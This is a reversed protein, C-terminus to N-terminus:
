FNPFSLYSYGGVEGSLLVDAVGRCEVGVRSKDYYKRLRVHRAVVRGEPDNDGFSVLQTPPSSGEQDDEDDGDDDEDIQTPTSDSGSSSTAQAIIGEVDIDLEDVDVDRMEEDEGEGTEEEDGDDNFMDEDQNWDFGGRGYSRLGRDLMRKAHHEAKKRELRILADRQICRPCKHPDTNANSASPFTFPNVGADSTIGLGRHMSPKEPDYTEYVFANMRGEGPEGRRGGLALCESEEPRTLVNRIDPPQFDVACIVKDRKMNETSTSPLKTFSVGGLHGPFWANSMSYDIVNVRPTALSLALADSAENTQANEEENQGGPQNETSAFVLPAPIPVIGCRGWQPVIPFFTPASSSAPNATFTVTPAVYPHSESPSEQPCECIKHHEQVDLFVPKMSLGVSTETFLHPRQPDPIGPYPVNPHRLFHVFLNGQPLQLSTLSPFSIAHPDRVYEKGHWSGSMSGLKFVDGPLHMPRRSECHGCLLIRWWETDWVKSEEWGEGDIENGDGEEGDVRKPSGTDWDWTVVRCLRAGPSRNIERFDEQTIGVVGEGPGQPLHPPARIPIMEKRAVFLLKAAITILPSNIFLRANFYPANM